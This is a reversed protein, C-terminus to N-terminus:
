KQLGLRRTLNQFRPNSRLPDMAPEVQMNVLWGSRDAYAKELWELAEEKRGMGVYALAVYYPSVYRQRAIQKVVRLAKEAEAKKGALAYAAALASVAGPHDSATMKGRSLAEIADKVMGMQLYTLGQFISGLSFTPDLELAKEFREIAQDYQRAFYLIWGHHTNVILSLPDLTRADQMHTLADEFRGMAALYLAYWYHGVVYNSNLRLALLFEKEAGQWDWEYLFMGYAMSVHAEAIREDIALAKMAAGRAQEYAEKPPLTSFLGLVNYVDSLGVYAQAYGADRLVARQFFGIAKRFGDETRKNWHHRGQLYSEYAVGDHTSDPHAGRDEGSLLELALSSAIHNACETQIALVDDLSRDYSHSWLNTQDCVRILQATIRVQQEARRVSGELVFGVGLERGIRDIAKNTHKYQMASTRAIVGLRAPRLRGLQVIMEETMGDAFYEQNPDGSLNDFPLVALMIRDGLGSSPFQEHKRTRENSWADLESTYAYVSSLKSHLHRRVPLGETKEWRQVTRVERRLYVAIEKWSDLREGTHAAEQEHLTEPYKRRM